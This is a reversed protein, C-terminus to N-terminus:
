PIQAKRFNRSSKKNLAKYTPTLSHCNPCILRVNLPSNNYANGDIHDVEVPVKGTTPNIKNWGCISCKNGYIDILYKKIFVAAGSKVTGSIEGNLWKKISEKYKFNQQCKNNCFIKHNEIESNCELCHKRKKTRLKNNYTAFCSKSCFNYKKNKVINECNLCKKINVPNLYCKNEHLSISFKNNEKNCWKCNIKKSQIEIIKDKIKKIIFPCSNSKQECCLKGNKLKYKAERGCGYDCLNTMIM